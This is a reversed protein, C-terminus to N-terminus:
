IHAWLAKRMAEVDFKPEREMTFLGNAEQYVDFLETYCFVQLLELNAVVKMLAAFREKLQEPSTAVSYGWDGDKSSLAIGGFETLGIPLNTDSKDLM